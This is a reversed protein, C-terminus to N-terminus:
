VSLVLAPTATGACPQRQNTSLVLRQGQHRKKTKKKEKKREEAEPEREREWAPAISFHRERAMPLGGQVAADHLMMSSERMHFSEPLECM